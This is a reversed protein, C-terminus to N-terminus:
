DPKATQYFAYFGSSESCFPTTKMYCVYLGQKNIHNMPIVLSYTCVSAQIISKPASFGEHALATWRHGELEGKRNCWVSM